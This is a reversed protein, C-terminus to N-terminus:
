TSRPYRKWSFYNGLGVIKAWLKQQTQPSSYGCSFLPSFFSFTRFSLQRGSWYRIQVLPSKQQKWYNMLERNDWQACDTDFMTGNYGESSNTTRSSIWFPKKKWPEPECRETSSRTIDLVKLILSEMADISPVQWKTLISKIAPYKNKLSTNRRSYDEM